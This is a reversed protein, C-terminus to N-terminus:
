RYAHLNGPQNLHTQTPPKDLITPFKHLLIM